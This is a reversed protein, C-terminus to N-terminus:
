TISYVTHGARLRGKVVILRGRKRARFGLGLFWVGSQAVVPRWDSFRYFGMCTCIYYICIYTHIYVYMCMYVFVYIYIHVYVDIYIYRVLFGESTGEAARKRQAAM